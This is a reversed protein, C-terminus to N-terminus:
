LKINRRLIGALGLVSSGLLVLTSPEPVSPIIEGSSVYGTISSGVPITGLSTGSPLKVTVDFEGPITLPFDSSFNGTATTALFTGDFQPTFGLGGHFSTPTFVAILDGLSGGPGLQVELFISSTGMSVSYNGAGLNTLSPTGGTMWMSYTGLLGLPDFLALGSIPGSFSVDLNTGTNTFVVSGVTGSALTVQSPIASAWGSVTIAILFMICVSAFALKKM